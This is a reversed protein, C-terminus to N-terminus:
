ATGLIFVLSLSPAWRMERGSTFPKDDKKAFPLKEAATELKKATAARSSEWVPLSGKKHLHL